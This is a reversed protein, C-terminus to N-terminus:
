TVGTRLAPPHTHTDLHSEDLLLGQFLSALDLDLSVFLEGDFLHVDRLEGRSLRHSVDTSKSMYEDGGAGRYALSTLCSCCAM